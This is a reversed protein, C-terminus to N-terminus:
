RYPQIARDPFASPRQPRQTPYILFTLTPHKPSPPNEPSLSPFTLCCPHLALTSPQRPLNRPLSQSHFHYLQSEGLALLLPATLHPALFICLLRLHAREERAESGMSIGLYSATLLRTEELLAGCFFALALRPSVKFSSTRRSTSWYAVYRPLHPSVSPSLKCLLPLPQSSIFRPKIFCSSYYM